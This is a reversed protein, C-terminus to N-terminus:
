GGDKSEIGKDTSVRFRGKVRDLGEVEVTLDKM